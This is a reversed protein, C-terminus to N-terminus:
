DVQKMIAKMLAVGTAHLTFKNLEELPLRLIEEQTFASVACVDHYMSQVGCKAVDIMRRDDSIGGCADCARWHRIDHCTNLEVDHVIKVM